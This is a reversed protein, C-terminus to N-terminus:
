CSYEIGLSVLRVDFDQHTVGPFNVDFEEDGDDCRIYRCVKCQCDVPVYFSDDTWFSEAHTEEIARHMDEVTQMVHSDVPVFEEGIFMARMNAYDRYRTSVPAYLEIIGPRPSRRDFKFVQVTYDGEGKAIAARKSNEYNEMVRVFKEIEAQVLAYDPFEGLELTAGLPFKVKLKFM